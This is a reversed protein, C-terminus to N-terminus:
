TTVSVATQLVDPVVSIDMDAPPSGGVVEMGSEGADSTDIGLLELCEISPQGVEREINAARRSNQGSLSHTRILGIM